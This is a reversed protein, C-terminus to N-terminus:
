SKAVLAIKCPHEEVTFRDRMHEPLPSKIDSVNIHNKQSDAVCYKETLQYKRHFHEPSEEHYISLKESVLWRRPVLGLIRGRITPNIAREHGPKLFLANGDSDTVIVDKHTDNKVTFSCAFMMIPSLMVLLAYKKM